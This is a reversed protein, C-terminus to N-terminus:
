VNKSMRDRGVFANGGREVTDFDPRGISYWYSTKLTSEIPRVMAEKWPIMPEVRGLLETRHPVQCQSQMDCRRKNGWQGKWILSV